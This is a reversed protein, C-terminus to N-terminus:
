TDQQALRISRPEPVRPTQNSRFMKHDLKPELILRLDCLSPTTPCQPIGRRILVMGGASAGSRQSQTKKMQHHFTTFAIRKLKARCGQSRQRKRQKQLDEKNTEISTELYKM